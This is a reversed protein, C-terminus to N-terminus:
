CAIILSLRLFKIRLYTRKGINIYPAIRALVNVKRSAKKCIDSTHRDFTFKNDIKIALLKERDSSDIHFEGTNINTKQNTCVILHCKDPNGKLLDGQFWQFLINSAKEVSIILEILVTNKGSTYATNDNAFNAIDVDKLVFFLDELFIKILFPGLISGHLM